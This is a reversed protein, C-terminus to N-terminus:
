RGGLTSEEIYALAEKRTRFSHSCAGHINDIIIGSYQKAKRGRVTIVGVLRGGPVFVGLGDERVDGGAYKVTYLQPISSVDLTM